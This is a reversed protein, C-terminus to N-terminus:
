VSACQRGALEALHRLMRERHAVGRATLGPGPRRELRAEQPDGTPHAARYAALDIVKEALVTTM